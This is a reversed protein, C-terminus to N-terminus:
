RLPADRRLCPYLVVGGPNRLGRHNGLGEVVALDHGQTDVKLFVREHGAVLEDFVSDLRRVTIQETGIETTGFREAAYANLKHVSSWEDSSACRPTHSRGEEEGLGFQFGAWAPDGSMTEALSGFTAPAPEVSAIRGTFGAEDRLMRAYQGKNAGVDIVCTVGLATFVERCVDRYRARSRRGPSAGGQEGLTEWAFVKLRGM